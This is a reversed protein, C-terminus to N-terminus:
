AFVFVFSNHFYLYPLQVIFQFQDFIQSLDPVEGGESISKHSQMEKVLNIYRHNVDLIYNYMNLM